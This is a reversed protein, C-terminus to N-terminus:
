STQLIHSGNQATTMVTQNQHALSGQLIIPQPQQSTTAAQNNQVQLKLMQLQNPTLQIPINQIEGNPGVVQQVIQLGGTQPVQPLQLVTAGSSTQTVLPASTPQM